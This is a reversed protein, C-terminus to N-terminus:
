IHILSLVHDGYYHQAVIPTATADLYVRTEAEPLRPPSQLTLTGEHLYAGAASGAIAQLAAADLMTDPQGHKEARKLAARSGEEDPKVTLEALAAEVTRPEVYEGSVSRAVLGLLRTTQIETGSLEGAGVAAALEALTLRYTKLGASEDQIHIAPEWTSAVNAANAHTCVIVDVDQPPPPPPSCPGGRLVHWGCFARCYAAGGGARIANCQLYTRHRACNDGNRAEQRHAPVGRARLQRAVEAARENTPVSVLIREGEWQRTAILEIAATTKGAGMPARLVTAGKREIAAALLGPLAARVEELTSFTETGEPNVSNQKWQEAQRATAWPQRRGFALGSRIVSLAGEIRGPEGQYMERAASKISAAATAEDIEGSAVLGGAACAVRRLSAWREGAGARGLQSCAAALWESATNFGGIQWPPKTTPTPTTQKPPTTTPKPLEPLRLRNREGPLVAIRWALPEQLGGAWRPAATYTPQVTRYIAPDLGARKAYALCQAQTAPEELLAILRLKPKTPAPGRHWFAGATFQVVCEVGWFEPPLHTDRISLAARTLEEADTFDVGEPLVVSDVDVWLYQRAAPQFGTALQRRVNHLAECDHASFMVCSHPNQSQQALWAALGPLSGPLNEWHVNWTSPMSSKSGHPSHIKQARTGDASTLVAVALPHQTPNSCPEQTPASHATYQKM